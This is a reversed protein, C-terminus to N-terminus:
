LIADNQPFLSQLSLKMHRILIQRYIHRDMTGEIRHLHGVGHAAFAGWVM